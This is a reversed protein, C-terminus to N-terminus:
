CACLFFNLGRRLLKKPAAQKISCFLQVTLEPVGGLVILPVFKAAIANFIGCCVTSPASDLTHFRQQLFLPM